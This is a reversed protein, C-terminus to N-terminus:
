PALSWAVETSPYNETRYVLVNGSCGLLQYFPHDAARQDSSGVSGSVMVWSAKEGSSDLKALGSMSATEGPAYLSAFVEGSDTYAVGTVEVKAPLLPVAQRIIAHTKLDVTIWESARASYFGLTKGHNGITMGGPFGAYWAVDSAAASKARFTTSDLAATLEGKEFSYQRLVASDKGRLQSDRERGLTWVSGDPAPRVYYAVYPSTQVVSKVTGDRGVKALFNSITGDKRHAGGALVVSGDSAVAADAVSVEEADNFWLTADFVLDGSGDNVVAVPTSQSAILGSSVLYRGDWKHRFYDNSSLIPFEAQRSPTSLKLDASKPGDKAVTGSNVNRPAAVCPAACTSVIITLALVRFCSPIGM